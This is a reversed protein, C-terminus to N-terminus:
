EEIVEGVGDETADDQDDAFNVLKWTREIYYRYDIDWDFESM